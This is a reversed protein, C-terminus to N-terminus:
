TGMRDIVTVGPGGFGDMAALAAPADSLGIRRGILREPALAGSEIMALMEPYRHAQM